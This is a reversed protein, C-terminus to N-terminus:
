FRTNVISNFISGFTYSFGLSFEYRYDTALQRRRLLIEEDTADGIPLYLQDRIRSVSGGVNLAFGKFLRVDMEGDLEMRHRGPDHLYTLTDLTVEATGWPQTLDFDVIFQADAVTERDKGYITREIYDFHSGGVTLQATLEKTASLRYPFFSYEVGGGARFARQQNLFTTSSARGRVAASWHDGLSKVVLATANHDHSKDLLREGDSLTFHNERFNLNLATNVKWEETVRNGTFSGSVNRFKQSQEGEVAGGARVRFVWFDWPDATTLAGTRARELPKYVLQLRDAVGTSTVYRVLGLKLVRTYGSREEDDTATQPATFKLEDNLGNFRGLGIFKFVYETGGSATDQTTVLIHLDAEKRDRVYDIFEVERRVYEGDCDDCDLFVRLRDPAPSSAPAPQQPAASAATVFLILLISAAAAGLQIM